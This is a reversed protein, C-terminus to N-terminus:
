MTATSSRSARRRSASNLALAAIRRAAGGPNAAGFNSVIRIGHAPLPGAGPAAHRRAAARLRRGSRRAAGAARARPHARRADRLDPVRAAPPSLRTSWPVAADTRDGSFGAACGIRVLQQMCAREKGLSTAAFKFNRDNSAALEKLFKLNLVARSNYFDGTTRSESTRMRVHGSCQAFKPIPGSLAKRSNRRARLITRLPGSVHMAM